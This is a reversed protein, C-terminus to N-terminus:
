SGRRILSSGAKLLRKLATDQHRETARQFDNNGRVLDSRADYIVTKLLQSNKWVFFREFRDLFNVVKDFREALTCRGNSSEVARLVVLFESWAIIVEMSHRDVQQAVTSGRNVAVHSGMEDRFAGYLHGVAAATAVGTTGVVTGMPHEIGTASLAVASLGTVIVLIATATHGTCTTFPGQSGRNDIWQRSSDDVKNFTHKMTKLDNEVDAAYKSISEIDSDDPRPNILVKSLLRKIASFEAAHQDDTCMQVIRILNAMDQLVQNISQFIHDSCAQEHFYSARSIVFWNESWAISKYTELIKMIEKYADSLSIEPKVPYKSPSLIPAHGHLADLVDTIVQDSYERLIGDTLSLASGRARNLDETFFTLTNRERAINQSM